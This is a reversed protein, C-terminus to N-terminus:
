CMNSRSAWRGVRHQAPNVVVISYDSSLDKGRRSGYTQSVLSLTVRSTVSFRCIEAVVFAEEYIRKDAKAESEGVCINRM